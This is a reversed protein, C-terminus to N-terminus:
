QCEEFSWMKAMNEIEVFLLKRDSFVHYVRGKGDPCKVRQGREFTPHPLLDLELQDGKLVM